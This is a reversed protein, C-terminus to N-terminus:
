RTCPAAEDYPAPTPFLEGPNEYGLARFMGRAKALTEEYEAQPDSDAVIAGGAHLHLRGRDLIMTRIAISMCMSGDLGLYGISGCYVNRRSPELENIIQMARIKPCGTVSGGPSAARLLDLASVGDRLTGVITASLHYVTPHAELTSASEVHISGFECVRGLDNRLLDIIMTLEAADKASHLLEEQAAADVLPDGIRPRTGKIPRTVVRGDRLDLFLEPSSSLIAGEGWDLWAAYAAPNARRLRRYLELPSAATATTFRQTLNVQYADGAAIYDLIRRVKQLYQDHTMNSVPPPGVPSDFTDATPWPSQCALEMLRDIRADASPRTVPLDPPWDVAVALCRDRAHDWILASDYLRFGVVPQDVDPAVRPRVNELVAGAEYGVFGVWGGPFPVDPRSHVAPWRDLASRFGDVWDGSDLDRQVFEDVPDCGLISHRGASSDTSVSELVFPHPQRALGALAPGISVAQPCQRVLLGANDHGFPRSM